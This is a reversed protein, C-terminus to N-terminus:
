DLGFPHDIWEEPSRIETDYSKDCGGAHHSGTCRQFEYVLFIYFFNPVPRFPPICISLIDGSAILTHRILSAIAAATTSREARPDRRRDSNTHTQSGHHIESIM